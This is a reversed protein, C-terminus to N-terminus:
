SWNKQWEEFQKPTVRYRAICGEHLTMLEGELVEILKERDSQDVKQVDKEIQKHAEIKNLKAEIIQYIVEKIFTHHKFRLPDPDGVVRGIAAYRYCSREYAWVFVDRMLEIRNLEYIGLLGSIYIDKPLDVFSMPSLNARIFPINVSLRSVRKNVDEFAQLYPIHVMMFFAQEFPDEIMNAKYIIQDFCEELLQPIALPMYVTKGVGVPIKRIAGCSSPDKILNRSLLGHLNLIIYRNIELDEGLSILFEIAEKHNLIMQTDDTNKGEAPQNLKLLRDTELLSYTNGELRSSNWSLDILLPEFIERAFTGAPYFGDPSKGM